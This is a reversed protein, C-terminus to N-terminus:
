PRPVRDLVVEQMIDWVLETPSKKADLVTHPWKTVLNYVKTRRSEIWKEDQQTGRAARRDRAVEPGKLWFLYLLGSMKCATLFRDVALRDGEAFLWDYPQSLVWKEAAAIVTFSLTDTGPFPGFPSGLLAVRMGKAQPWELKGFEVHPVPKKHVVDISGDEPILLANMLTSKGVGPEGVIYITNM